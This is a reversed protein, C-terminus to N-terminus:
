RSCGSRRWPGRTTSRLLRPVPSVSVQSRRRGVPKHRDTVMSEVLLGVSESNVPVTKATDPRAATGPAGVLTDALAPLAEAVSM